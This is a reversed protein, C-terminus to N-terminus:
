PRKSSSPWIRSCARVPHLASPPAPREDAAPQPPRVPEPPMPPMPPAPPVPTARSQFPPPTFTPRPEPGSWWRSPPAPPPSQDGPGRGRCAPGPHRSGVSVAVADPKLVPEPHAPVPASVTAVPSLEEDIDSEESPRRVFSGLQAALQSEISPRGNSEVQPARPPQDLPRSSASRAPTTSPAPIRAGAVRVINTEIVVDNPGGILLLHEVNDRRLLLLQRQRDLDYVDVIGLRPQRSRSRDGSGPMMLRAGTLKRFVVGFLVLLVLIIAFAIAFQVARSAEIGFLSSM